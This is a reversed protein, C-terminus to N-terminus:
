RPNQSTCVMVSHDVRYVLCKNILLLCCVPAPIVDGVGLLRIRELVQVVSNHIGRVRYGLGM